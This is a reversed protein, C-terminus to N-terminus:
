TTLSELSRVVPVGDARVKSEYMAADAAAVLTDADTPRLTWAVGISARLDLVHEGVKMRGRIANAVRQAVGEAQAEDRVGRCVVLFEDGGIRGILDTPRLGHRLRQACTLLLSDGCRHGYEDNVAKFDDLDVFVVATDTEGSALAQTLEQLVSRRNLCQTLDDLTAAQRLEERLRTSETVDTVCVLSGSVLGREDTLALARVICHRVDGTSDHLSVETESDAAGALAHELLEALRARDSEVVRDVFVQLTPEGGWGLLKGFRQNYYTPQGDVDTQVIGLPLTDALRRLLGVRQRLAEQAAMEESVDVMEALVCNLEPDELHNYNTVELWLWSGNAHKHRLRLRRQGGPTSLLGVWSNVALEHDQEDLLALSRTSLLEERTYGLMQPLADDMEIIGATADKRIVAVRPRLPDVSPPAQSLGKVDGQIFGLYVGYRHRADVYHITAPTDRGLLTIAITAAGVVVTQDWTEIVRTTDNPSCIQLLTAVGSILEHDGVPVTDPMDIILGSEAIAAVASSDHALLVDIVLDLQHPELRGAAPYPSDLRHRGNDAETVQTM